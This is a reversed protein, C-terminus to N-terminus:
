LLGAASLGGAVAAAAVLASAVGPASMSHSAGSAAFTAAAASSNQAAICGSLGSCGLNENTAIINAITADIPEAVPAPAPSATVLSTFICLLTFTRFISPFM